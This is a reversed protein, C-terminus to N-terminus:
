YIKVDRNFLVKDDVAYLFCRKGNSAGQCKDLALKSAEEEGSRGVAIGAVGFASIAMARHPQGAAFRPAVIALVDDPLFPVAAPDFKGPYVMSSPRPVTEGTAQGNQYVLLCRIRARHECRQLVNRAREAPLVRPDAISDWSGAPSVALTYAGQNPGAQVFDHAVELRAQGSLYPIARENLAAGAAPGSSASCVVIAVIAFRANM